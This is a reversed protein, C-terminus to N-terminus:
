YTAPITANTYILQADKSATKGPHLRCTSGDTRYIVFDLREQNGRNPDNTQSIYEARAHTVGPGIIDYARKHCAIYRRWDFWKALDRNIDSDVGATIMGDLTNRAFRHLSRPPKIKEELAREANVDAAALVVPLAVSHETADTQLSSQLNAPGPGTSASARPQVLDQETAHIQEQPAPLHRIVIPTANAWLRPAEDTFWAEMVEYSYAYGQLARLETATGQSAFSHETAAPQPSAQLDAPGPQSSAATTSDRDHGTVANSPADAEIPTNHETAVVQPDNADLMKAAAWLREGQVHGYYELFEKHSYAIRNWALRKESLM